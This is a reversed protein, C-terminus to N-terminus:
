LLPFSECTIPSGEKLNEGRIPPDPEQKMDFYTVDDGALNISLAARRSNLNNGPASHFTKSNWILTDGPELNTCLIEFSPDNEFNPPKPRDNITNKYEKKPDFHIARHIM